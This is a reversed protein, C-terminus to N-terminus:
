RNNRPLMWPGFGTVEEPPIPPLSVDGRDPQVMSSCMDQKHGYRGCGFCILYLGEYEVRQLSGLVKIVPVLPANLDIEVCVRAYRGWSATATTDDVKITKGIADGMYSLVEEDFLEIPLEPFRIWVLTSSITETSPRFNPRWKAVILYHEM